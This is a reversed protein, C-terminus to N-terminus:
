DVTRAGSVVAILTLLLIKLDLWLSWNAIYYNDWEARDSISTKGRLGHVQAWGTIGAKVRHRDGYAHVQEEFLQVFEPREPRPGVLSMEGRLVNLLQPLEDISTGRLIRGVRSRRDVGEVGGPATDPPLPMLAVVLDDTPQADRMTRFKLMEFVRGDRGIRPQRFFIPPGVSLYVLLAVAGLIPAILALLLAAVVRDFAHKVTFQWGTPSVRRVSLLPLGGVHEVTLRRNMEEYLRPVFSVEVGLQECRRVLRLLVEAPARSFAIIVHEVGHEQVVSGLDWSAGLVPLRRAGGDIPDKDLFGIPRLGFEPRDLLRRAVLAGVDGAGVILTPKLLDGQRRARGQAVDLAARGGAVCVAAVAWLWFTQQALGTEAGFLVRLSLVVMAALATTVIAALCDDTAQLGVRWNYAGRHMSIALTLAAFVAIWGDTTRTVGGLSGIQLLLFTLALMAMDVLVRSLRSMEAARARAAAAEATRFAEAQEIAIANVAAHESTAV